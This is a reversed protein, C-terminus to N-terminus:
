DDQSENVTTKIFRRFESPSVGFHKKFIESFYSFNSFQLSLAIESISLETKTLLLQAHQLRVTMMYQMPSLGVFKKFQKLFYSKNLYSRKILDDLTLDDMFHSDIYDKAKHIISPTEAVDETPADTKIPFVRRLDVLLEYLLATIKSYYDHQREELEKHMAQITKFFVNNEDAFRTFLVGKVSISNSPLGYINVNDITLVYHTLPKDSTPYQMHLNKSNVVVLTHPKIPHLENDVEFFGDGDLYYFVELHAHMHRYNKLNPTTEKKSFAILQPAQHAISNTPINVNNVYYYNNM